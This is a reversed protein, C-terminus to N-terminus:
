RSLLVSLRGRAGFSEVNPGGPTGSPNSRASSGPPRNRLSLRGQPTAPQSGHTASASAPTESALFHVMIRLEDFFRVAERRKWASPGAVIYLTQNGVNDRTHCVKWLAESDESEGTVSGGLDAGPLTTIVFSANASSAHEDSPPRLQEISQIMSVDIQAHLLSNINRQDRFELVFAADDIDSSGKGTRDVVTTQLWMCVESRDTLVVRADLSTTPPPGVATVLGPSSEAQIMLRGLTEQVSAVEDDPVVEGVARRAAEASFAAKQASSTAGTTAIENQRRLDELFLSSREELVGPLRAENMKAEQFFEPVSLGSQREWVLEPWPSAQAEFNKRLWQMAESDSPERCKTFTRDDQGLKTRMGLIVTSGKQGDLEGEFLLVEDEKFLKWQVTDFLRVRKGEDEDEGEQRVRVFSHGNDSHGFTYHGGQEEFPKTLDSVELIQNGPSNWITDFCRDVPIQISMPPAPILVELSYKEQEIRSRTFANILDHFEDKCVVGSRDLDMQQFVIKGDGELGLKKCAEIFETMTVSGKGISNFQGYAADVGGWRKILEIFELVDNTTVTHRKKAGFLKSSLHGPELPEKPKGLVMEDLEKDQAPAATALEFFKKLDEKTIEGKHLNDAAAFIRKVNLKLNLSILIKCFTREDVLGNNDPDIQSWLADIGGAGEVFHMFRRSLKSSPTVGAEAERAHKAAKFAKDAAERKDAASLRLACGDKFEFDVLDHPGGAQEQCDERIYIWLEYLQLFLCDFNWAPPCAWENTDLLVPLSQAKLLENLIQANELM